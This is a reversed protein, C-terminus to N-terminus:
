LKIRLIEAPVDIIDAIEQLTFEATMTLLEEKKKNKTTAREIIESLDVRVSVLNKKVKKLPYYWSINDEEFYVKVNKGTIEIITGHLGVQENMDKNYDHGKFSFGVVRRGILDKKKM